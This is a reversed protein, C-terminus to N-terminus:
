SQTQQIASAKWDQPAAGPGRHFTWYETAEQPTRPDGDVVQNSLRDITWDLLSFRMSVTAYDGSAERWAESLDGKLLRVDAIKNVLGRRANQAIQEAFYSAMEPTAMTRLHDLDESGFATQIGQLLREFVNFDQADLSIPQSAAGGAAAGAPAAYPSYASGSGYSSSSGGRGFLGGAWNPQGGAFRRIAWRVIFFLLGLQILLGLLSGGGGMGGFLGRGFLLGFAGAGLLGGMFGRGFMGGGAGLGSGFGPRAFAPGQPTMSRGITAAGGPASPTFSPASFTRAGRSGFSGGGGVRAQATLPSLALSLALAAITLISAIPHQSRM